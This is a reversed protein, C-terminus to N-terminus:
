PGGDHPNASDCRDFQLSCCHNNKRRHLTSGSGNGRDRKLQGSRVKSTQGLHQPHAQRSRRIFSLTRSQRNPMRAAALTQAHITDNEGIVGNLQLIYAVVAYVKDNRLSKSKNLIGHQPNPLM